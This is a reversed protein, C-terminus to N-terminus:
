LSKKFFILVKDQPVPMDLASDCIWGFRDEALIGGPYGNYPQTVMYPITTILKDNNDYLEGVSDFATYAAILPYHQGFRIVKVYM